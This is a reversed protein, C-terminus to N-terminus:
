VYGSVRFVDVNGDLSIVIELPCLVVCRDIDVCNNGLKKLIRLALEVGSFPIEIGHIDAESLVRYVVSEIATGPHIALKLGGVLRAYTRLTERAKAVTSEISRLITYINPRSTGLVSAIEDIGMGAARLTLVRLQKETFFGVRGDRRDM